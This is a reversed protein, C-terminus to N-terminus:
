ADCKFSIPDNSFLNIKGVSILLQKHRLGGGSPATVFFALLGGMQLVFTVVGCGGLGEGVEVGGRRRVHGGSAAM